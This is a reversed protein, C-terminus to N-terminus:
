NRAGVHPVTEFVTAEPDIASFPVILFKATPMWRRGYEICTPRWPTLTAWL